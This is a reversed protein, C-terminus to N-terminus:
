RRVPPMKQIQLLLAGHFFIACFERLLLERINFGRVAFQSAADLRISGACDLTEILLDDFGLRFLGSAQRFIFLAPV